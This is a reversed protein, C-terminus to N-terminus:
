QNNLINLICHALHRLIASQKIQKLNFLVLQMVEFLIGQKRVETYNIMGKIFHESKREFAMPAQDWTKYVFYAVHYEM